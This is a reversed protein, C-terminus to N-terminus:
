RVDDTAMRGHARSKGTPLSYLGVATSPKVAEANWKHEFPVVHAPPRRITRWRTRLRTHIERRHSVSGVAGRIGVAESSCWRLKVRM